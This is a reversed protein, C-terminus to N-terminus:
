WLNWHYCWIIRFISAIRQNGGLGRYKEDYIYNDFGPISEEFRSKNSVIYDAVLNRIQRHYEPDGFTLQSLDRFM